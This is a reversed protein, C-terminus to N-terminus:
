FITTPLIRHLLIGLSFALYIGANNQQSFIEEFEKGEDSNGAPAKKIGYELYAVTTGLIYAMREMKERSPETKGNRWQSIAADSIPVAAYFEGKKMKKAKLLEEIRSLMASIDM